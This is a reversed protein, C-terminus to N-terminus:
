KPCQPVCDSTTGPAPGGPRQSACGSFILFLVAMLIPLYGGYSGRNERHPRNLEPVKKVTDGNTVWLDELCTGDTQYRRIRLNQAYQIATEADGFEHRDWITSGQGPTVEMVQWKKPRRQGRYYIFWTILFAGAMIVLFAIIAIHAQTM